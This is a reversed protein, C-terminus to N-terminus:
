VLASKQFILDVLSETNLISKFLLKKKLEKLVTWKFQNLGRRTSYNTVLIVMMTFVIDNM